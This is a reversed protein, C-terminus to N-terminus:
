VPLDMANSVESWNLPVRRNVWIHNILAAADLATVQSPPKNWCDYTAAVPTGYYCWQRMLLEDAELGYYHLFWDISRNPFPQASTALVAHGVICAVYGCEPEVPIKSVETLGRLLPDLYLVKLDFHSGAERLTAELAKLRQTNM